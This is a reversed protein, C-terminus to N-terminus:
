DCRSFRIIALLPSYGKNDATCIEWIVLIL